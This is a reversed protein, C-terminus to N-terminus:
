ASLGEAQTGVSDPTQSPTSNLEELVRQWEAPHDKIWMALRHWQNPCAPDGCICRWNRVEAGSIIKPPNLMQEPAEQAHQRACEVRPVRHEECWLKATLADAETFQEIFEVFKEAETLSYETYTYVTVVAGSKNGDNLWHRARRIVTKLKLRKKRKNTRM